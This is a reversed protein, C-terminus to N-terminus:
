GNKTHRSILYAHIAAGISGVCGYGAARLMGTNSNDAIASLGSCFMFIFAVVWVACFASRLGTDAISKINM